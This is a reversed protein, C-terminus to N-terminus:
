VDTGGLAARVEARAAAQLRMAERWAAAHADELPQLRDAAARLQDPTVLPVAGGYMPHRLPVGSWWEQRHADRAHSANAVVQLQEVWARVAPGRYSLAMLGAPLIGMDALHLRRLAERTQPRLDDWPQPEGAAWARALRLLGDRQSPTLPKSM